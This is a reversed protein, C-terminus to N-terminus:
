AGKDSTNTCAGQAIFDSLAAPAYRIARRGIRVFAPGDGAWRWRRLTAPRVSLLEAADRETILRTDNAM